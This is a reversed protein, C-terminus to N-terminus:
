MNMVDPAGNRHARYSNIGRQWVIPNKSTISAALYTSTRQLRKRKGDQHDIKAVCMMVTM